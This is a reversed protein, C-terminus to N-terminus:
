FITKFLKITEAFGSLLIRAKDPLNTSYKKDPFDPKKEKVFSVFQDELKMIESISMDEKLLRKRLRRWLFSPDIVMKLAEDLNVIWEELDIDKKLTRDALQFYPNFSADLQHATYAYIIKYPYYSRIEKILHAGEYKSKFRKGVGKIDCLIIPFAELNRVDDIDNFHKINYSHDRLLPEYAFAEDDIIAIPIKNRMDSTFTPINTNIDIISQPKGILFYM